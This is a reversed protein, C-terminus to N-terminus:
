QWQMACDPYLAQLDKVTQRTSSSCSLFPPSFGQRLAERPSSPLCAITYGASSAFIAPSISIFLTFSLTDNSKVPLLGAGDTPVHRGAHGIYVSKTERVHVHTVAWFLHSEPKHCCVPCDQLVVPNSKRYSGFFPACQAGAGITKDIRSM